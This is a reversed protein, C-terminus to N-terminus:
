RAARRRREDLRAAADGALAARAQARRCTATASTTSRAPSRTCPACRAASPRRCCASGTSLLQAAEQGDGARLQRYRTARDELRAPDRPRTLAAIRAARPRRAPRSRRGLVDSGPEDMAPSRAGGRGGAVFGAVALRPAGPAAHSCRRAASSCRHPRAHGRVRDAHPRSPRRPPPSTTMAAASRRSTRRRAHLRPGAGPGRGRGAPARYGPPGRLDPRLARDARAHGRRLRPPGAPRGPRGVPRCYGLLEDFTAYRTVHRTRRNAEILRRFPGDPLAARSPAGSGRMMVPHSAATAGRLATSSARSGTSCRPATAGRGRRRRRRGPARLRLARAADRRRAGLLRSAVPFNEQGPRVM